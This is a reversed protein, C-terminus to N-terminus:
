IGRLMGLWEGVEKEQHCSGYRREREWDGRGECCWAEGEVIPGEKVGAGARHVVRLRVREGESLM